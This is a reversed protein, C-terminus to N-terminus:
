KNVQNWVADGIFPIKFEVGKYAMYILYVASLFAAIYLVNLILGFISGILPLFKLGSLIINVVVLAISWIISQMAHFRVKKNEKEVVLFFIGSIFGVLYALAGEINEGLGLKTKGM